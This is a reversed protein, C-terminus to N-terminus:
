FRCSSVNFFIFIPEFSVNIFCSTIENQKSETDFLFKKNSKKRKSFKMCVLMHFIYIIYFSQIRQTTKRMLHRNSAHRLMRHVCTKKIEYMKHTKGRNSKYEKFFHIIIRRMYRRNVRGIIFYLLNKFM